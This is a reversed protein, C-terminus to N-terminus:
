GALLRGAPKPRGALPWLRRLRGAALDLWGFVDATNRLAARLPSLASAPILKARWRVGPETERAIARRVATVDQRLTASAAPQTAYRAREEAAALRSLAQRAEPPLHLTAGVRAAVARPSESRCWAIGHDSLDDRFERWAAHALASDGTATRWRRHRVASRLVRPTIALLVLLGAIIQWILFLFGLSHQQARGGGPAGFAARDQNKLRILNGSGARRGSLPGTSPTTGSELGLGPAGRGAVIGAYSPQTATAQGAPGGPTPEFRIWGVGQFYLEPWAHADQTTVRWVGGPGRTGATYGIAVRAPIGALRALAAMAIAFQQCFGSRTKTLFKLLGDPTNRLRVNLSYRFRGSTFFDLIKEAKLYPTAAGRTIRAALRALEGHPGAPFGTYSGAIAASYSGSHDLEPNGPNPETSVVTYSLRSLRATASYVMLTAKDEYWQGAVSVSAPAYPLPLFSVGSQLGTVGAAFTVTTKSAIRPTVASLGPPPQLRGSGVQVYDGPRVLVWTGSRPDYNLVYAQLYQRAPDPSTTRYTLVTQAATRALEQHLQAFPDPLQVRGSGPGAGHGGSGGVISHARVWPLALPVLVALGVAAMGIRRGSAALGRTDPGRAEDSDDRGAQWVSVLRGWVALRDRGDAALLVLYGAIALCFVLTAGLPGQKASTTVPACFLVLLPLGAVAPSRLRVAILDTAVAVIGIGAAALLATGATGPVPPAYVREALGQDALGWLAALSGRTPLATGGPVASAFSANLYLLLGALYSLLCALAPFLWVRAAGAVAVALVMAAGVRVGLPGSVLLPVTCAATLAVAAAGARAPALRTLSGTGAVVIAAGAGAWFWSTGGIVPYLSVSALIVAAAAALTLKHNM